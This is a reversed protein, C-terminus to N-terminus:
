NEYCGMCYHPWKRMVGCNHNIISHKNKENKPFTLALPFILGVFPSSPEKNLQTSKAKQLSIGQWDCAIFDPLVCSVVSSVLANRPGQYVYHM